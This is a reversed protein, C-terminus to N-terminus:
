VQAFPTHPHFDYRTYAGGDGYGGIGANGHGMAAAGRRQANDGAVIDNCAGFRHKVPFGETTLAAGEHHEHSM